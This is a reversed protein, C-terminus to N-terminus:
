NLAFILCCKYILKKLTYKCFSKPIATGLNKRLIRATIVHFKTSITNKVSVLFMVFCLTCDCADVFQLSCSVSFGCRPLHHFCYDGDVGGVGLWQFFTFHDYCCACEEFKVVACLLEVGFDLEYAFCLAFVDFCVFVCAWASVCVVGIVFPFDELHDLHYAFFVTVEYDM